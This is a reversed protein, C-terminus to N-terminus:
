YHWIPKTVSPMMKRELNVIGRSKSQSLIQNFIMDVVESKSQNSSDILAIEKFQMFAKQVKELTESDKDKQTNAHRISIRREREETSVYLCYVKDPVKIPLISFSIYRLFNCGYVIHHCWTSYIYRDCVVPRKKLLRCIEFSSHITALLYFFFRIAPHRNEVIGRHRQWFGSPTQYFIADLKKSLEKGVYTKGSGDVGELAIFIKKNLM